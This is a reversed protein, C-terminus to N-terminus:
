HSKVDNFSGQNGNMLNQGNLNYTMTGCNHIERTKQVQPVRLVHYLLYYKYYGEYVFYIFINKLKSFKVVVGCCLIGGDSNSCVM